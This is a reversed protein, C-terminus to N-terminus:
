LGGRKENSFVGNLTLFVYPHLLDCPEFKLAKRFRTCNVHIRGIEQIFNGLELFINTLLAPDPDLVRSL